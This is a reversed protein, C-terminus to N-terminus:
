NVRSLMDQLLERQEDFRWQFEEFRAAPLYFAELVELRMPPDIEGSGAHRECRYLYFGTDFITLLQGPRLSLGTEEWTERFATCQASEDPLSSGGPLSIKGSIGQIVLLGQESVTFCGASPARDSHEAFPCPPPEGACALGGLLLVLAVLYRVFICMTVLVRHPNMRLLEGGIM